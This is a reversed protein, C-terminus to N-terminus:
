AARAPAGDALAIVEFAIECELVYVAHSGGAHAELDTRISFGFRRLDHVYAGLRFPPGGAFDYARLGRAGKARLGMLTEAERGSISIWEGAPLVRAMIKPYARRTM